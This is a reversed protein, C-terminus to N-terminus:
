IHSGTEFVFGAFFDGVVVIKDETNKSILNM